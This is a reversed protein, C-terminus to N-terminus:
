DGKIGILNLLKLLQVLEHTYEVSGDDTELMALRSIDWLSREGNTYFQVVGDFVHGSTLKDRKKKTFAKYAALKDADGLAFDDLHM